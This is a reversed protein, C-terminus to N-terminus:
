VIDLYQYYFFLKMSQLWCMDGFDIKLCPISFVIIISVFTFENNSSNKTWRSGVHSTPYMQAIDWPSVTLNRRHIWSWFFRSTVQSCSFGVLPGKTLKENFFVWSDWLWTMYIGKVYVQGFQDAQIVFLIDHVLGFCMLFWMSSWMDGCGVHEGHRGCGFVWAGVNVHEGGEERNAESDIWRAFEMRCNDLSHPHAKGPM